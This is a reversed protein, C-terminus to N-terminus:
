PVGTFYSRVFFAAVLLIVTLILPIWYSVGLRKALILVLGIFVVALIVDVRGAIIADFLEQFM